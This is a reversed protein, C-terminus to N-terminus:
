QGKKPRQPLQVQVVNTTPQTITHCNVITEQNSVNFKGDNQPTTIFTVLSLSIGGFITLTAPDDALGVDIDSPFAIKKIEHNHSDRIILFPKTKAVDLKM